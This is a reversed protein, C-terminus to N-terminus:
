IVKRLRLVIAGLGALEREVVKYDFGQITLIPDDNEPDVPLDALQLFVSPMTAEVGASATGLSLIYPEDFICSVQVPGGSAPRYIIQM